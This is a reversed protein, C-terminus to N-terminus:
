KRDGYEETQEYEGDHEEGHLHGYDDEIYYNGYNFRPDNLQGDKYTVSQKSYLHNGIQFIILWFYISTYGKM